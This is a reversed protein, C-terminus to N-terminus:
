IRKTIQQAYIHRIHNFLRIYADTRYDPYTWDWPRFSKGQYSLTIEAYIGRGLYIRHMYDKTTALVLKAMDLYGPDINVTRGKKCSLKKEIKNTLIKIRSLAEPPILKNFSIFRRFLDRGIEKEYHDTVNFNFVPSEFDVRGFKKSLIRLTKSYSLKDRFILALILKVPQPKIIKGM